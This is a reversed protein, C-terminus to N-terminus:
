LVERLDAKRPLDEGIISSLEWASEAVVTVLVLFPFFGSGAALLLLPRADM